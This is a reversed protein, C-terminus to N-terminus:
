CKFRRGTGVAEAGAANGPSYFVPLATAPRGADPHEETRTYEDAPGTLRAGRELLLRAADFRRNSCAVHLLTEGRENRADAPVGHDLM